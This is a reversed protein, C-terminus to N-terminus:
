CGLRGLVVDMVLVLVWSFGVRLVVDFGWRRGLAGRDDQSQGAVLGLVWSFGVGPCPAPGEYTKAIGGLAAGCWWTM